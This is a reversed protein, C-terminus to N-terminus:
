RSLAPLARVPDVLGRQSIRGGDLYCADLNWPSIPAV